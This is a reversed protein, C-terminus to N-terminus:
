RKEEQKLFAKVYREWNVNIDWDAYALASNFGLELSGKKKQGERDYRDM